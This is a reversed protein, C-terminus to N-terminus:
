IASAFDSLALGEFRFYQKELIQEAGIALYFESAVPNSSEATWDLRNCGHELAYNAIFKM